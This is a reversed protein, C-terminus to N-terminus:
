RKLQRNADQIDQRLKEREQPTMPRQQQRGQRDAAKQDRNVSRMDDRMRQREEQKMQQRAGGEHRKGQAFSDLSPLLLAALALHVVLVTRMSVGHYPFGWQPTYCNTDNM